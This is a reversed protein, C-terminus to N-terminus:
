LPSRSVISSVPNMGSVFMHHGYVMYSLFAIPADCLHHGSPEAAAQAYQHDLVHSVIGMRPVIAIYVEPHGFFWFLHQWLLTSRGSNAATPRQYGPELPHFFEHGGRPRPDASHVRADFCRIGDPWAPPLSGHGYTLPLRM